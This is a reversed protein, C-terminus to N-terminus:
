HSNDDDLEDEPPHFSMLRPVNVVKDGSQVIVRFFAKYDARAAIYSSYHRTVLLQDDEKVGVIFDHRAYYLSGLGNEHLYM